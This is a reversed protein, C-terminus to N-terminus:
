ARARGEPSRGRAGSPSCLPPVTGRSARMARRSSQASAVRRHGCDARGPRRVGVGEGGFGGAGHEQGPAGRGVRIAGAQAVEAEPPIGRPVLPVARRGRLPDAFEALLEAELDPAEAAQLDRARPAGMRRLGCDRSRRRTTAQVLSGVVARPSMEFRPDREWGDLFHLLEQRRGAAEAVELDRAPERVVGAFRVLALLRPPKAVQSPTYLSGTGRDSVRWSERFDESTVPLLRGREACSEFDVLTGEPATGGVLAGAPPQSEARTLSIYPIHTRVAVM